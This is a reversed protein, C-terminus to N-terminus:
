EPGSGEIPAPEPAAEAAAPGAQLLGELARVDEVLAGVRDSVQSAGRGVQELHTQHADVRAEAAGLAARTAELDRSLQAGERASLGWGIVTGALAVALVWPLWTPMSPGAAESRPAPTGPASAEDPRVVSLRPKEGAAM